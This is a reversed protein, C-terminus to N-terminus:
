HQVPFSTIQINRLCSLFFLRVYSWKSTHRASGIVKQISFATARVSAIHRMDQHIHPVSRVLLITSRCINQKRHPSNSKNTPGDTTVIRRTIDRALSACIKQNVHASARWIFLVIWPWLFRFDLWLGHPMSPRSTQLLFFNYIHDLSCCCSSLRRGYM